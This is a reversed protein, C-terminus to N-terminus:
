VAQFTSGNGECLMQVYNAGKGEDSVKGSGEM